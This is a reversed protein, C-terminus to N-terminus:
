DDGTIKIRKTQMKRTKMGRFVKGAPIGIAETFNALKLKCMLCIETDPGFEDENPDVSHSCFYCGGTAEEYIDAIKNFIKLDEIDPEEVGEPLDAIGLGMRVENFVYNLFYEMVAQLEDPPLNRLIRQGDPADPIQNSRLFKEFRIIKADTNKQDLPNTM